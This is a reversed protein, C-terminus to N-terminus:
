QARRHTSNLIQSVNQYGIIHVQIFAKASPWDLQSPWLQVSFIEPTVYSSFIQPIHLILFAIQCEKLSESFSIKLCLYVFFLFVPFAIVM